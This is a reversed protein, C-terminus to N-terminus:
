ATRAKRRAVGILGLLGSGFLWVAAPVPVVAAQAYNFGSTSNVTFAVPTGYQNTVTIGGWRLTHSYDTSATPDAQQYVDCLGGGLSDTCIPYFTNAYVNTKLEYEIKRTSPTKVYAGFSFPISYQAAPVITNIVDGMATNERCFGTGCDLHWM